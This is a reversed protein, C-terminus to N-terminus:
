EAVQRRRWARKGYGRSGRPRSLRCKKRASFVQAVYPAAAAQLAAGVRQAAAEQPAAGSVDKVLTMDSGANFEVQAAKVPASVETAARQPAAQMQGKSSRSTAVSAVVPNCHAGM